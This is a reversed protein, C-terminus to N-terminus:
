FPWNLETSMFRVDGQSIGCDLNEIIAGGLGTQKMAGLDAKIGNQTRNGDM